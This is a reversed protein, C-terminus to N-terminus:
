ILWFGGMRTRPGCPRLTPLWLAQTVRLGATNTLAGIPTVPMLVGPLPARTGKGEVVVLGAGVWWWCLEVLGRPGMVVVGPPGAAEGRPAELGWSKSALPDWPGEDGGGLVSWCCGYGREGAGCM